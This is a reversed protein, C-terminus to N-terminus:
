RHVWGGFCIRGVDEEYRAANTGAAFRFVSPVLRTEAAVFVLSTYASIPIANAHMICCIVMTEDNM